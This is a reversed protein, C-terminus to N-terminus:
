REESHAIQKSRSSSLRLASLCVPGMRRANCRASCSTPSGGARRCHQAAIRGGQVCLAHSQFRTVPPVYDVKSTLGHWLLGTLNLSVHAAYFPVGVSFRVLCRLGM